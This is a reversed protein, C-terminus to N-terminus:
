TTTSSSSGNMWICAFASSQFRLTGLKTFIHLWHFISMYHQSRKASNLCINFSPTQLMSNQIKMNKFLSWLTHCQKMIVTTDSSTKCACVRALCGKKYNNNYFLQSAKINKHNNVGFFGHSKTSRWFLFGSLNSRQIQRIPSIYM